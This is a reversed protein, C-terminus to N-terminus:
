SQFPEPGAVCARIASVQFSDKWGVPPPHRSEVPGEILTPEGGPSIRTRRRMDKARHQPDNEETKEMAGVPASLFQSDGASDLPSM